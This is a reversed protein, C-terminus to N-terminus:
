SIKFRIPMRPSTQWSASHGSMKASITKTTSEDPDIPGFRNSYAFFRSAFSRTLFILIKMFIEAVHFVPDFADSSREFDAFIEGTKRDNLVCFSGFRDDIKLSETFFDM